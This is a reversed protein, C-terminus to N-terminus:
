KRGRDDICRHISFRCQRARNWTEGASIAPRRRWASTVAPPAAEAGAGRDPHAPRDAFPQRGLVSRRNRRRRRGAALARDRRRRDFLQPAQAVPLSGKKSLPAGPLTLIRTTWFRGLSAIVWLRLLAGFLGLLPWRQPLRRWGGRGCGAPAAAQHQRRGLRTQRPTARRRFGAYRLWTVM